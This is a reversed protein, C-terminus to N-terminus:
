IWIIFISLCDLELCINPLKVFEDIFALKRCIARVVCLPLLIWKLKGHLRNERPRYRTVHEITLNFPSEFSLATVYSRYIPARHPHRVVRITAYFPVDSDIYGARSVYLKPCYNRAVSSKLHIPAHKRITSDKEIRGTYWRWTVM